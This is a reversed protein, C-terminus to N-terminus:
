NLRVRLAHAQCKKENFAVLKQFSQFGLHTPKEIIKTMGKM